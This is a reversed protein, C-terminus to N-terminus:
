GLNKLQCETICINRYVFEGETLIKNAKQESVGKITELVRKPSSDHTLSDNEQLILIPVYTYAVSEVTHLGFDVFLKIDRSTLGSMGQVISTLERRNFLSSSVPSTRVELASLPTPAGPGPLGSDDHENQSEMDATM